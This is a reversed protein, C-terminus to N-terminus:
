DERKRKRSLAPDAGKLKRAQEAYFDIYKQRTLEEKEWFLCYSTWGPVRSCLEATNTIMRPDRDDDLLIWQDRPDRVIAVYHGSGLEGKHQVVSRLRYRLRSTGEQYRALDVYEDFPINDPLKHSGIPSFRIIQITLIHPAAVIHTTSRITIGNCHRKNCNYDRLEPAFGRKIIENLPAAPAM